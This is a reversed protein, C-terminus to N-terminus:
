MMPMSMPVVLTLTHRMLEELLSTIWLFMLTPLNSYPANIQLKSLSSFILVSKPSLLGLEQRQRFKLVYNECFVQICESASSSM